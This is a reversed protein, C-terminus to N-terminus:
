KIPLNNEPLQWVDHDLRSEALAFPHDNLANLLNPRTLLHNGLTGVLSCMGLISGAIPRTPTNRVSREVKQAAPTRRRILTTSGAPLGTFSPARARQSSPKEPRTERERQEAAGMPVQRHGSHKRM